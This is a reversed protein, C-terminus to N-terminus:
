RLETFYRAGMELSQPEGVVTNTAHDIMVGRGFMAAPHLDMGFKESVLSQMYCALPKREHELWHSVRQTQLGTSDRIFSFAIHQTQVRQTANWAHVFIQPRLIPSSQNRQIAEFMLEQWQGALVQANAIKSSLVYSLSKEFTQQNLIKSYISGGFSTRALCNERM